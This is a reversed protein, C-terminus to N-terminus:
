LTGRKQNLSSNRLLGMAVSKSIENIICCYYIGHMNLIAMDNLNKSMMLADQYGNCIFGLDKLWFIGITAFIVSKQNM